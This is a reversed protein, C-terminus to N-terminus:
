METGGSILFFATIHYGPAVTSCISRAIALAAPKGTPVCISSRSPSTVTTRDVVIGFSVCKSTAAKVSRPAAAGTGDEDPLRRPPSAVGEAGDRTFAAGAGAGTGEELLRLPPSVVGDAGERTFAGGAALICVERLWCDTCPM